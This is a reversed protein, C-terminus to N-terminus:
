CIFVDSQKDRESYCWLSLRDNMHVMLNYRSLIPHRDTDLSFIQRIVRGEEVVELEELHMKQGGGQLDFRYFCSHTELQVFLYYVTPSEAISLTM